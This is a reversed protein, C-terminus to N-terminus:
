RTTPRPRPCFSTNLRTSHSSTTLCLCCSSLTSYMSQVPSCTLTLLQLARSVDGLCECLAEHDALPHKGDIQIVIELFRYISRFTIISGGVTAATLTHAGLLLLRVCRSLAVDLVGEVSRPPLSPHHRVEKCPLTRAIRPDHLLSTWGGTTSPRTLPPLSSLLM